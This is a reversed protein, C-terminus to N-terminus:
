RGAHQRTRESWDRWVADLGSRDTDTDLVRAVTGPGALEYRTGVPLAPSEPARTGLRLVTDIVRFPGLLGPARRADSDPLDLDEVLLEAGTRRVRTTARLAGGAEGARGFVLTERLCASAGAALDITTARVVNAGDAIVFPEGSWTLTGGEAVDARVTWGSAAGPADYAVTGATEVIDLWAGPGVRVDFEVHDGGLLLATTAVLAVRAGREDVRQVRAAVPGPTHRVRARGPAPDVAIVTM